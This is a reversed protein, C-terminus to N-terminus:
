HLNTDKPLYFYEEWVSFRELKVRIKVYPLCVKFYVVGVNARRSKKRPNVVFIPFYM